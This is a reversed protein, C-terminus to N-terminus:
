VIVPWSGDLLSSEMQAHISQVDSIHGYLCVVASNPANTKRLDEFCVILWQNDVNRGLM